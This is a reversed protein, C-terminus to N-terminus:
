EAQYDVARLAADHLAPRLVRFRPDDRVIPHVRNTLVVVCAEQEPDIWLSCGTFGLHGVARRSILDGALSGNESPGDWGLRWTSGPVGAPQWFERLIQPSVIPDGSDLGRGHYAACLAFGLRLVDSARGFLGAHGAIGGMAFANLDHVEGVVLRRRVPCRETPAVPSGCLNAAPGQVRLDVFRLGIGLPGFILREALEDLPGGLVREVVAGLLIFGLDSYLSRSGPAYVLPEAAALSVVAQAGVPRPDGKDLLDDYFKRHAPFGGAHALVRRLTVEPRDVLAPLHRGLAEDLDLRGESVARMVLVSTVLAKTLSALDYVTDEAAPAPQPEVQRQGFAQILPAQGFRGAAVVAGPIVGSSIADLALAHLSNYESAM